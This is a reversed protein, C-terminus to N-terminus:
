ADAGKIGKHMHDSLFQAIQSVSSRAEPIRDDWEFVHWLDEWVMLDVSVGSQRLSEALRTSQSLLLDRTGTSILCPPFGADFPGHIPSIQPDSVNNHAAYYRACVELEQRRLTPDRGDNDHLSDGSNSLDCWPSMLATAAPLAAGADRATLMMSLALNGGASEGVLAFPAQCIERYVARVDEVAAPWPHEPALRYSPLIVRAGTMACLHAAIALDQFPAGTIFGGGFCYLITWDAVPGAPLLELVEIGGITTDHTQVKTEDLTRDIIPAIYARVEARQKPLNQVSLDAGPNPGAAIIEQAELSAKAPM